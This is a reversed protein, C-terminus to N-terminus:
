GLQRGRSMKRAMGLQRGGPVGRGELGSELGRKVRLRRSRSRWCLRRFRGEFVAGEWGNIQGLEVVSLCGVALRSAPNM